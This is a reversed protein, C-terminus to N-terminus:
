HVGCIVLAYLWHRVLTLLYLPHPFYSQYKEIFIIVNKRKWSEKQNSYLRRKLILTVPDIFLEKSGTAYKVPLM